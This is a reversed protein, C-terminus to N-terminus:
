DAAADGIYQPLVNDRKLSTERFGVVDIIIQNSNGQNAMVDIYM